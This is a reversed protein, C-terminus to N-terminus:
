DPDATVSAVEVAPVSIEIVAAPFVMVYLTGVADNTFRPTNDADSKEVNVEFSEDADISVEVSIADIRVSSVPVPFRTNENFAV